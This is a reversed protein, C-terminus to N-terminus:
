MWRAKRGMVVSAENGNGGVEARSAKREAGGLKSDVDDLNEFGVAEDRSGQSKAGDIPEVRDRRGRRMREIRDGNRAFFTVAFVGLTLAALMWTAVRLPAKWTLNRYAWIPDGGGAAVRAAYEYRAKEGYPDPCGRPYLAVDCDWSSALLDAVADRSSSDSSSLARCGISAHQANYDDFPDLVSLFHNGDCDDTEFSAVVYAGSSSCGLASSCGRDEEGDGNLRRAYDGGAGDLEVCDANTSDGDDDNAAAADGYAAAYADDYQLRRYYYDDYAAAANDNDNGDDNARAVDRYYVVPTEGLAKLLVDAGGYTFFTNLYRGKSCGGAGWGGREGKKRGYLAYAANACFGQTRYRYWQEDGDRNDGVQYDDTDDVACESWVCSAGSSPVEVWFEDYDDLSALVDTASPSLRERLRALRAAGDVYADAAGVALLSILLPRTM